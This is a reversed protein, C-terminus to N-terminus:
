CVQLPTIQSTSVAKACGIQHAICVEKKVTDNLNREKEHLSTYFDSNQVASSGLAIVAIEKRSKCSMTPTCNISSVGFHLVVAAQHSCASGDQGAEHM